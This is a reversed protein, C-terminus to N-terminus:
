RGDAGAVSFGLSALHRRTEEEDLLRAFAEVAPRDRRAKPVVFDYSEDELPLFALRDDRAVTEIAIGWDARGQMVAAAVANHNKAQVAYGSPQAGALVRDILIRTGSGRNRNIMVCAPDALAAAIAEHASKGAFRADDARCVVGQKRSYGSLLELQDTLFPRNYQGTAADLLHMGAIDCEGRRAADLGATSGVALFKSKWGQKQLQGLLYDLGVCHSGIVVLDAVSLDPAILQVSVTTGAEVIETHRGITVFGDARSFTTVSGSGKGM